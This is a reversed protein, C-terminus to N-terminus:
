GDGRMAQVMEQGLREVGQFGFFGEDHYMDVVHRARLLFAADEGLSLCDTSFGFGQIAEYSEKRIIVVQPYDRALRAEAADDCGKSHLSFVAVVHFGADLLALALSFPMLSASSDVVIETNEVVRRAAILSTEASARAADLIPLVHVGLATQKEEFSVEKRAAVNLGSQFAYALETYRREIEHMDYTAHWLISPIHLRTEMLDAAGDGLHSMSVTLRSKAMALYEDFTDCAIIQRIEGAGLATLVEYLECSLIPAEFNGVINIAKDHVAQEELLEYLRTHINKAVSRTMDGAIPNIHALLFRTQPFENRLGALLNEEDTGLFDDICNVYLTIVRPSPKITELLEATADFIQREYDGTVMDTQSFRLFSAHNAEGNRLARIGQRRGCSNPCLYLSHSEPIRVIRRPRGNDPIQYSLEAM